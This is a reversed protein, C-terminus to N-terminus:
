CLDELEKASHLFGIQKSWQIAAGAVEVAGELAYHTNKGPGLSYCLTSLLGHNSQIPANGVNKLIFCGTGYTNKVEGKRLVHGLCASQQDGIVRFINLSKIKGLSQFM